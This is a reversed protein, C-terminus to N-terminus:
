YMKNSYTANGFGRLAKGGGRRFVAKKRPSVMGGMNRKVKGGYSRKVMGGKKKSKSRLATNLENLLKSEGSTMENGSPIDLDSAKDAKQQLTRRVTKAMLKDTSTDGITGLRGLKGIFNDPLFNKRGGREKIEKKFIPNNFYSPLGKVDGSADLAGKPIKRDKRIKDGATFDIKSPKPPKVTPKPPKTASGGAGQQNKKNLQNLAAAGTLGAITGGVIGPGYEKLKSLRSPQKQLNKTTRTSTSRPVITSGSKVKKGKVNQGQKNKAQKVAEKNRNKQTQKNTQTKPKAKVKPKPTVKPKPRFKKTYAADRLAKESGPKPQIVPGLDADPDKPKAKPKAKLKVKPKVKPKVKSAAKFATQGMPVQPIGKSDLKKALRETIKQAKGAQKAAQKATLKVFGKGRLLNAVRPSIASYIRSGSKFLEPVKTLVGAMQVRGQNRKNLKNLEKKVKPIYERTEKLLKSKDRGGEIWKETAGPGMNYAALVAEIDGNFKRYMAKAYDKGVRVYEEKSENKAPRVGYGPKRATDPMVQMLGRAGRPSVANPNGGSEIKEIAKYLNKLSM